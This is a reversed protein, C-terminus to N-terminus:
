IYIYIYINSINRVQIQYDIQPLIIKTSQSTYNLLGIDIKFSKVSRILFNSLFIKNTFLYFIIYYIKIISIPTFKNDFLRPQEEDFFICDLLSFAYFISYKSRQFIYNESQLM